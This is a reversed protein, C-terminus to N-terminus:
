AVRFIQRARCMAVLVRFQYIYSADFMYAEDYSNGGEIGLHSRRLWIAQGGASKVTECKGSCM